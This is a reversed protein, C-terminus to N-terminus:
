GSCARAADVNADHAARQLLRVTEPSVAVTRGDVVVRRGLQRADRGTVREYMVLAALYTGLPDPHFRDAGYLPVSPDARRVARWADGAPWLEGDVACAARRFSEHIRDFNASDRVTPWVMYLAPRAGAARIAPALQRTVLVLSDRDIERSTPGQQLVVHDWRAARISDLAGSATPAVLHDILAYGPRTVSAVAISDGAARALAALTGPLDNFYTLSNGVFLVRHGGSSSRAELPLAAGRCSGGALVGAALLALKLDV